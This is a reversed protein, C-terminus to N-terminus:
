SGNPLGNITTVPTKIETSKPRDSKSKKLVVKDKNHSRKESKIRKVESKSGDSKHKTKHIKPNKRSQDTGDTVIPRPKKEKPQNSTCDNLQKSDKSKVHKSSKSSSKTEVLQTSTETKSVSSIKINTVVDNQPIGNVVAKSSTEKNNTSNTNQVNAKYKQLENQLFYITSQMVEVDEDLDQLFEDM